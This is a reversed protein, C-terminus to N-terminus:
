NNQLLSFKELPTHVAGKATLNSQFLIFEHVTFEPIKPTKQNLFTHIDAYQKLRALTIHPSFPRDELPIGCSNVSNKIKEALRNLCPEPNLGVWLVRPHHRGPFCGTKDFHLVFSNMKISKLEKSLRNTTADDLEGLFALTLHM